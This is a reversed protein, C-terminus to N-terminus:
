TSQDMWWRTYSQVTVDTSTRCSVGAQSVASEGEPGPFEADPSLTM